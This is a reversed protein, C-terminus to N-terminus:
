HYKSIFTKLDNILDNCYRELADKVPQNLIRGKSDFISEPYADGDNSMIFKNVKVKTEPRIFQLINFPLDDDSAIKGEPTIRLKANFITSYIETDNRIHVGIKDGKFYVHVYALAIIDAKCTKEPCILRFDRYSIHPTNGLTAAGTTDADQLVYAPRSKVYKLVSMVLQKQTKGKFEMGISKEGTGVAEMQAYIYSRDEGHFKLEFFKEQALCTTACWFLMTVIYFWIKKAM